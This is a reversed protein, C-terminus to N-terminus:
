MEKNTIDEVKVKGEVSLCLTRVIDAKDSFSLENWKEDKNLTVHYFLVGQCKFRIKWYLYRIFGLLQKM